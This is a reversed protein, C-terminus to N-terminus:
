SDLRASLPLEFHPLDSFRKWRGGWSITIGLRKAVKEVVEGMERFRETDKWDLPYPAADIALSPKYNHRGKVRVGDVNTVKKGPTTRGQAYLKQQEAVPRHGCLIILDYTKIVENFLRQLDPHATALHQKSKFSFRPM